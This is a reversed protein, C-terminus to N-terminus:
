HALFIVCEGAKLVWCGKKYFHCETCNGSCYYAGFEPATTSGDAWLVHSVPFNYPNNMPMGEWASFICHVNEAFRNGKDYWDNVYDYCKTFFLIDMSPNERALWDIYAVDEKDIDGGVNLRLARVFNAKCQISIEEWYRKKDVRHIASNRARDNQVEDRWCDNRIDYCKQKCKKCNHCDVIPILSVTWCGSGTKGNGGQLVVHANEINLIWKKLLNKMKMLRAKLSDPKLGNVKRAKTLM